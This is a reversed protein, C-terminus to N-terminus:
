VYQGGTATSGPTDGPFFNAGGGFTNIVGNTDADYDPVFQEGYIYTFSTDRLLGDGWFIDSAGLGTAVHSAYTGFATLAVIHTDLLTGYPTSAAGNVHWCLIRNTGADDFAAIEHIGSRGMM